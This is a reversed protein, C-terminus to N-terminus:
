RGGAHAPYACRFGIDDRQDTAEATWNKLEAANKARYSGGRALYGRAEHTWEAVNGSLDFAGDPTAGDPRSGALEPGTADEACPGKVMGYAARRCVLGTSGWAFRRAERGMAALVWEAGTPLRGGAFKCFAEAQTPSVGRVPEGPDGSQSLTGCTSAARCAEWRARTVEFADLEFPAVTAAGVGRAEHSQWDPSGLLAKGGAYAVRTASAVCGEATVEQTTACSTPRGTCRGGVEQQGAGCCRPGAAVLGDPCRAPGQRDALAFMVTAAISAAGAVLALVFTTLEKSTM